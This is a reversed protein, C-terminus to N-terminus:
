KGSREDILQRLSDLFSDPAKEHQLHTIANRLHTVADSVTLTLLSVLLIITTQIRM